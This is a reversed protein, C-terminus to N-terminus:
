QCSKLMGNKTLDFRFSAGALFVAFLPGVSRLGNKLNGSASAKVMVSFPKQEAYTEARTATGSVVQLQYAAYDLECSEMNSSSVVVVARRKQNPAGNPDQPEALLSLSSAKVDKSLPIGWCIAQAPSNEKPEVKPRNMEEMLQHALDLRSYFRSRQKSFSIGCLRSFM